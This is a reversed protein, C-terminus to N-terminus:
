IKHSKTMSISISAWDCGQSIRIRNDNRMLFSDIMHTCRLIVMLMLCFANSLSPIDMENNQGDDKCVIIM